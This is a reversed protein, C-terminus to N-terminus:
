RNENNFFTKIYQLQIITENRISICKWPVVVINTSIYKFKCIEVPTLIGNEQAEKSVMQKLFYEHEEDDLELDYWHESLVRNIKKLNERM